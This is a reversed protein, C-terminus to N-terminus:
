PFRRRIEAHRHQRSGPINHRWITSAKECKANVARPPDCKTNRLRLFEPNAFEPVRARVNLIAFQKRGHELVPALRAPFCLTADEWITEGTTEMEVLDCNAM